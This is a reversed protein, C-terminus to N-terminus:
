HEEPITPTVEDGEGNGNRSGGPGGFGSDRRVEERHEFKPSQSAATSSSGKRRRDRKKGFGGFGGFKGMLGGDSGGTPGARGRHRTRVAEDVNVSQERTSPGSDDAGPHERGAVGGGAGAVRGRVVPDALGRADRVATLFAPYALTFLLLAVVVVFALQVSAAWGGGGRGSMIGYMVFPWFAPGSAGMTLWASARKTRDGQGRLGIAFILPWLPGEAFFFLVMPAAIFNPNTNGARPKLVVCLLAFFLTLLSFIGLMTRPSPILRSRPYKVGLWAIYAACFRSVAFATHAILLYDTASLALGAPQDSTSTAAGAAFATVLTRFFISMSEQAAICTWQATVALIICVTRLQLGGLSRKKPDVPLREAARGLEADRVEPLPMYYFFLALIVCLLTIALYTWQVDILEVSNARQGSGLHVFFVKQALVGSAVTAVGQIGQAILIRTEAYQSPGCLIIFPNAATELVALGFGVVFNSIMFGPFSTLVASPWFMITGIGYICLGLIFTSKFGGVPDRHKHKRHHFRAHEDHRLVWEGVILPGFFYGGGFYASTLGITEATTMDAISAVVTNLTNLLGYSFGWLLFLVIVVFCYRVSESPSTKLMSKPRKMNVFGFYIASDHRSERRSRQTMFTTRTAPSNPQDNLTDPTTLFGM